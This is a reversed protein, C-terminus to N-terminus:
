NEVFWLEALHATDAYQVDVLGLCCDGVIVREDKFLFCNDIKLLVSNVPKRWCLFPLIINKLLAEESLTIYNIFPLTVFNCFFYQVETVRCGILFPLFPVERKKSNLKM